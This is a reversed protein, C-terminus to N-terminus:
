MNLSWCDLLVAGGLAGQNIGCQQDCVWCGAALSDTVRQTIVPNRDQLCVSM